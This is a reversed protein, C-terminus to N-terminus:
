IHNAPDFSYGYGTRNVICNGYNGLKKRLRTIHVDVTRDLVVEGNNWVKALIAERSFLKFENLALLTLIKYETKTLDISVNDISVKKMDLDITLGDIKVTNDNERTDNKLVARKLVSKVRAIVEKISFPKSIYDDGGTSFGTLMDNESDKATLFIIPIDNGSKRLKEAMRFGSMGGMMVDLIILKHNDSLKDLAQEASEALDLDFGESTLNFELIDRIDAEDDVVLLLPNDKKTEM